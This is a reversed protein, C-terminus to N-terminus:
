IALGEMARRLEATTLRDATFEAAQVAVSEALEASCFSCDDVPEDHDIHADFDDSDNQEDRYSM